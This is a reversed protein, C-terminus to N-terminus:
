PHVETTSSHALITSFSPGALHTVNLVAGTIRIIPDIQIQSSWASLLYYQRNLHAFFVKLLDFGAARLYARLRRWGHNVLALLKM